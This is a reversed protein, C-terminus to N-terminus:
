CRNMATRSGLFLHLNAFSTSCYDFLIYWIKGIRYSGRADLVPSLNSSPKRQRESARVPLQVQHKIAEKEDSGEKQEPVRIKKVKPQEKRGAIESRKVIKNRGDSLLSLTTTEGIADVPVSPWHKTHEEYTNNDHFQEEANSCSPLQYNAVVDLLTDEQHQEQQEAISWLDAIFEGAIFESGNTPIAPDLNGFDKQMRDVPCADPPCAVNEKISLLKKQKNKIYYTKNRKSKFVVDYLEDSVDTCL